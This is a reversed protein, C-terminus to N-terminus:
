QEHPTHMCPVTSACEGNPLTVCNGDPLSGPHPFKGTASCDLCRWTGYQGEPTVLRKHGFTKCWNEALQQESVQQVRPADGKGNGPIALGEKMNAASATPDMDLINKENFYTM